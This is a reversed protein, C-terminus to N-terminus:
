FWYRLIKCLDIKGCGGNEGPVSRDPESCEGWIGLWFEVFFHFCGFPCSGDVTDGRSVKLGFDHRVRDEDM